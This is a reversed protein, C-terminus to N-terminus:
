KRIDRYETIVEYSNLLIFSNEVNVQDQLTASSVKSQGRQM